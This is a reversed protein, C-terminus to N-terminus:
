RPRDTVPHDPKGGKQGGKSPASSVGSGDRSWLCSRTGVDWDSGGQGRPVRGEQLDKRQLSPQSSNDEGKSM